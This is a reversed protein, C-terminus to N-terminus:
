TPTVEVTLQSALDRALALATKTDDASTVVCGLRDYSSGLTGVTDGINKQFTAHVAGQAALISKLDKRHTVVGTATPLAYWVAAAKQCQTALDKPEVNQGLIQKAALLCLDIGYAHKVLDLIHDGGGRCHTEIIRVDQGLVKIETHTLGFNIGIEQLSKNVFDIISSKIEDSLSRPPITHGCEVFGSIFKETIAVVHHQGAIAIGEVSFEVGEIYEELITEDASAQVVSEIYRELEDRSHVLSVHMSARGCVPKAILPYTLDAIMSGYNSRPLVWQKTDDLGASKLTQRMVFKNTVAKATRPSHFSLGLEDALEAGYELAHDHMCLMGEFPQQAHLAALFETSSGLDEENADVIRDYISLDLTKPDVKYPVLTLRAGLDYILRHMSVMGGVVLIRM